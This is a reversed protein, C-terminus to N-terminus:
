KNRSLPKPTSSDVRFQTNVVVPLHDSPWLGNPRKDALHKYNLIDFGRSFIYDIRDNLKANTDFGSFTGIPGELPKESIQAADDMIESLYMIPRQKPKANFDGTLIVPLEQSNLLMMKKGILLASKFRAMNGRHDFHTNFFFFQKKTELHEFRAVTCIRPLAADWGKSVHNPTLSLWFTFEDFVKLGKAKYFIGSFEGKNRGDDRGGGVYKYDFLVSDLYKMQSYLAEQVGFADPSQELILQAVDEKREDWKNEGDSPNNYRINYSMFTLDQGYVSLSM